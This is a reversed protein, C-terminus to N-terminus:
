LWMKYWYTNLYHRMFGVMLIVEAFIRQPEPISQVKVENSQLKGLISEPTGKAKVSKLVADKINKVDDTVNTPQYGYIKEMISQWSLLKAESIDSHLLFHPSKETFTVKAHYDNVESVDLFPIEYILKQAMALSFLEDNYVIHNTAYYAAYGSNSLEKLCDYQHYDYHYKGTSKNKSLHPIHFRLYPSDWFSYEGGKSELKSSLKYQIFFNCGRQKPDKPMLLWPFYYATDWGLDYEAILSVIVPNFLKGRSAFLQMTIETNVLQQLQSESFNPEIM